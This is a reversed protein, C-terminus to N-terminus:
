DHINRELVVVGFGEHESAGKGDATGEVVRRDNDQRNRDIAGRRVHAAGPVPRVLDELSRRV